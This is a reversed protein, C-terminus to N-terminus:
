RFSEETVEHDEYLSKGLRKELLFLFKLSDLSDIFGDEVLNEDGTLEGPDTHIIETLVEKILDKSDM